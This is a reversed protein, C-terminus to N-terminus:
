WETLPARKWRNQSAIWVYLYNDDIAINARSNVPFTNPLATPNNAQDVYGVATVNIDDHVKVSIYGALNEVTIIRQRKWRDSDLPVYVSALDLYNVNPPFKEFQYPRKEPM